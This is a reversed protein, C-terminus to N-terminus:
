SIIDIIAGRCQPCNNNGRDYAWEKICDYHYSHGCNLKCELAGIKDMCIICEKDMDFNEVMEYPKHALIPIVDPNMELFRILQRRNTSNNVELNLVNQNNGYYLQNHHNIGLLLRNMRMRDQTHKCCWALCIFGIVGSIFIYIITQVDVM